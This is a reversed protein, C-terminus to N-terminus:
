QQNVKKKLENLEKKLVETEEKQEILYLTLEEIKKLLLANTEALDVGNEQVEETTPVEPLHGNTQIFFKLENLPMLNYDAEFVNDAWPQQDIKIRRARLLGNNELQLLRRDEDVSHIDIALEQGLYDMEIGGNDNVKFLTKLNNESYGTNYDDFRIFDGKNGQSITGANIVHLRALNSFQETSTGVEKGVFVSQTGRIQGSVDLKYKPNDKGIAVKIPCANYIKNLGNHWVPNVYNGQGDRTADCNEYDPTYIADMLSKTSKTYTRGEKDVFLMKGTTDNADAYDSFIIDGSLKLNGELELREVPNSMGIGV